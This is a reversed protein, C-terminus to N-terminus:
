CRAQLTYCPSAWVQVGVCVCQDGAKGVVCVNTVQRGVLVCVCM